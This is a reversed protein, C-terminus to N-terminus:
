SMVVESSEYCVRQSECMGFRRLLGSVAIAGPASALASRPTLDLLDVFGGAGVVLLQLRRQLLEVDLRNLCNLLHVHELTVAIDNV